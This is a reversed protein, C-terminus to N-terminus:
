PRKVTTAAVRFRYSKGNVDPVSVTGFIDFDKEATEAWAYEGPELTVTRYSVQEQGRKSTEPEKVLKEGDYVWVPGFEWRYSRMLTNDRLKCLRLPKPSNDAFVVRGAPITVCSSDKTCYNWADNPQHFINYSYASKTMTIRSAALTILGTDALVSIMGARFPYAMITDAPYKTKQQINLTLQETTFGPKSYQLTVTGPVYDVAYHGKADTQAQFAASVVKVSVDALPRKVHDVVVGEIKKSCGALLTATLGLLLVQIAKM